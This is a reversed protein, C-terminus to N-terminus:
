MGSNDYHQFPRLGSGDELLQVGPESPDLTPDFSVARPLKRDDTFLM